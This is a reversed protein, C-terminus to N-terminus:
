VAELEDILLQLKIKFVVMATKDNEGDHVMPVHADDPFLLAFREPRMVLETRAAQPREFLQFDNEENYDGNATLGEAPYCDIIEGGDICYQLDVYERHTEALKRTERPESRRFQVIAFMDEGRLEYTGEDRDPGIKEAWELAERIVSSKRLYPHNKATSKTDFIM